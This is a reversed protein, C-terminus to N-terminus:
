MVAVQVFAASTTGGSVDSATDLLVLIAEAGLADIVKSSAVTIPATYRYSADRIDNTRDVTLTVGTSLGGEDLRAFHDTTAWSWTGDSAQTPAAFMAFARIIGAHTGGTADRNYAGRIMVLGSDPGLIIPTINSSTVQLPYILDTASQASAKSSVIATMWRTKGHALVVSSGAGKPHNARIPANLAM